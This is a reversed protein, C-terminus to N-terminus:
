GPPATIGCEQIPRLLAEDPAQGAAECATLYEQVMYVMRDAFAAPLRLFLPVLTRVAEEYAALAERPRQESQSRGM